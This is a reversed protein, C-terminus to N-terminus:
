YLRFLVSSGLARERERERAIARARARVRLRARARGGEREGEGKSGRERAGETVGERGGGVGRREREPCEAESTM